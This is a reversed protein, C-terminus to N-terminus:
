INIIIQSVIKILNNFCFHLIFYLLISLIFAQNLVLKYELLNSLNFM